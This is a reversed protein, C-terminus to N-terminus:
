NKKRIAQQIENQSYGHKLLARIYGEKAFERIGYGEKVLERIYGEKVLERISYGEKVLEGIYGEKVLERIHGEKVLEKIHGEKVLEKIHGEKVLEGIHGEKVLKKILNINRVKLQRIDIGKSLLYRIPEKTKVAENFILKIKDLNYTKLNSKIEKKTGKGETKTFFQKAQEKTLGTKPKRGGQIRPQSPM